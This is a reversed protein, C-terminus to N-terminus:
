GALIFDVQTIEPEPGHGTGFWAEPDLVQPIVRYMRKPLETRKKGSIEGMLATSISFRQATYKEIEVNSASPHQGAM